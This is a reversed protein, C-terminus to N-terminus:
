QLMKHTVLSCKDFELFLHITYFHQVTVDHLIKYNITVLVSNATEDRRLQHPNVQVMLSLRSKIIINNIKEGSLWDQTSNYTQLAM